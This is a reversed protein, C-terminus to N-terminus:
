FCGILGIREVKKQLRGAYAFIGRIIVVINLLHIALASQNFKVEEIM